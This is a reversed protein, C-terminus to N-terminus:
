LEELLKFVVPVRRSLRAEATAMQRVNQGGILPNM